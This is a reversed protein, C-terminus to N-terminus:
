HTDHMSDCVVLKENCINRRNEPESAPLFFDFHRFGHTCKEIEYNSLSKTFNFNVMPFCMIAGYYENPTVM